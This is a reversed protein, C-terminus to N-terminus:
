LGVEQIDVKINDEWKGRRRALPRKEEHRGVLVRCAGRRDRMRAVHGTLKM